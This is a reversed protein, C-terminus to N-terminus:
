RVLIDHFFQLAKADRSQGLWFMAKKRIELDPDTRAIAILKDVAADEHRQSLVFTFHERLEFPQLGDYLRVLDRSDADSEGLWFLADKRAEITARDDRVLRELEPALSPADAIAAATVAESANHAALSPAISLLYRAAEAADAAGLDTADPSASWRGGVYKRVSVSQGRERGIAVRVPGNECRRTWGDVDHRGTVSVGGGGDGCVGPRAPYTLRVTGDRVADIRAALSQAAAAHVSGAVLAALLAGRTM